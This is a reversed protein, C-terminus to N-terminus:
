LKVEHRFHFYGTFLGSAFLYGFATACTVRVASLDPVRMPLYVSLDYPM